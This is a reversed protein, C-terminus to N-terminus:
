NQSEKKFDEENELNASLAYSTCKDERCDTPEYVYDSGAEGIKNGDPDSLLAPDIYPLTDKDIYAPYYNNKEYFVEELSYYMANIATKREDDRATMEVNNKQIFFLFSAAILVVSV